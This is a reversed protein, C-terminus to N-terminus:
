ILGVKYNDLYQSNYVTYHIHPCGHNAYGHYTWDIRMQQRGAFDYYATSKEYKGTHNATPINKFGKLSNFHDLM